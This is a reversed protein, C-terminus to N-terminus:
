VVLWRSGMADLTLGAVLAIAHSQGDVMVSLMVGDATQVTAVPGFGAVRVLDGEAASFDAIIDPESAIGDGARIIFTDAGAGGVLTDIGAGGELRDRGEGGELLDNGVFGFLMDDGDDGYVADNGSGGSIVDAGAGGRMIDDGLNGDLTDRGAAV